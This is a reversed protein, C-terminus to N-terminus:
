LRVAMPEPKEPEVITVLGDKELGQKLYRVIQENVSRGGAEAAKGCLRILAPEVRLNMKQRGNKVM